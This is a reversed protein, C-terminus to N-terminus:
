GMAADVLDRIKKFNVILIDDCENYLLFPVHLTQESEKLLVPVYSKLITKINTQDEKELTKDNNIWRVMKKRMEPSITNFDIKRSFGLFSKEYFFQSSKKEALVLIKIRLSSEEESFDHNVLYEFLKIMYLDFISFLIKKNETDGEQISPKIYGRNIWKKLHKSDVGLKALQKATYGPLKEEEGDGLKPVAIQTKLFAVQQERNVMSSPLLDYFSLGVVDDDKWIISGEIKISEGDAFSLTGSIDDKLNIEGETIFKIGGKSIDEVAFTSGGIKLLPREKPEFIVRPHQRNELSKFIKRGM